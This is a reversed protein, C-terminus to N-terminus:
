RQYAFVNGENNMTFADGDVTGTTMGAGEWKMTLKPGEKTYTAKVQREVAKSASPPAFFIRSACTVDANITFTGSEVKLERGEHQLTCPVKKGDVSVLTYVGAPSADAEARKAHTCGSVLLVALLPLGVAFVRLGRLSGDPTLRQSNTTKM